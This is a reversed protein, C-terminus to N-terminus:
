LGMIQAIINRQIENSGGGITGIRSDRFFRQMDHEMMYSAGGMVQMGLDAVRCDNETSVIKAINTEIRPEVGADLMEAVRYTLLRSVEAMIRMDSFKHAVAQFRTIPQGFQKRNVAYDKAYDVVHQTNGAGAAALCLRELSLCKMLGRWGENENGILNEIPVEVNDFFVENARTTRRGLMDLTRISVGKADAPILLISMGRNGALPDTKVVTVLYHAVHACTIYLKQGNVIYSDGRRAARTAIAAADSGADPETLAFAMRTSGDMIGPLYTKQLYESGHLAIHQGAYIVTTLYATAISAYHYAMAEVLVTLDKYSGGVGGKAEAFPLAMWGAEALAQYAEFPFEGARDLERIKRAPLVQELLDLVSDRILRQQDTFGFTNWDHRAM